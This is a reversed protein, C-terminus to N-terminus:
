LECITFTDNKLLSEGGLGLEHAPQHHVVPGSVWVHRLGQLVAVDQGKVHRQFVLLGLDVGGEQVRVRFLSVQERLALPPERVFLRSTM